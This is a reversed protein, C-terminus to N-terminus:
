GPPCTCSATACRKRSARKLTPPLALLRLWATLDAAISAALTWAQNIAFERSPFRGTGTDKAHRIRDEVRAHARHRAELFVVQGGKARPTNTAVAQYRWGDAHEFLSLAAGPHPHERRVIVRMGPPWTSLNLMGTIEVVDGHERVEGDAALAPKWMDKPIRRIAERVHETIAYGVSYQVCRNRKADHATLWDLLQHSSGAGDARILLKKRHTAPVQAIAASLVAIHDAATNSGANGPRLLLAMSEQTNHCWVGLPHYGFGKKFTVASGEKDSHTAELTADVDLVVTDGLDTGAVQSAPLGSRTELQAWVHARVKARAKDIRKAVAPTVEDLTRWVTPASAVPGLVESQHRLVDIDAIAEGGGTILVAVDVLVRGRDHTPTFGRRSLM